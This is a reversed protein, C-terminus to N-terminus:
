SQATGQEDGQEDPYDLMELTPHDADQLPPPTSSGICRLTDIGHRFEAAARSVPDFLEKQAEAILRSDFRRTRLAVAVAALIESKSATTKVGLVAFPDIM